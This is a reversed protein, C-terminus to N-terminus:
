TLLDLNFILFFFCFIYIGFLSYNYGIVHKLTKMRTTTTTTDVELEGVLAEFGM